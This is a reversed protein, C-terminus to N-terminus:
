SFILYRRAYPWDDICTHNSAYRSHTNAQLGQPNQTKCKSRTATSRTHCVTRLHVCRLLPPFFLVVFADVWERRELPRGGICCGVPCGNCRGVSPQALVPAAYSVAAVCVASLAGTTPRAALGGGCHSWQHASAAQTCVPDHQVNCYLQQSSCADHQVNCTHLQICCTVQQMKRVAHQM